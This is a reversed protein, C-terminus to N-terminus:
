EYIAMPDRDHRADALTAPDESLHLPAAQRRHM